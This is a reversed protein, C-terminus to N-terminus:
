LCPMCLQHYRPLCIDRYWHNNYIPYCKYLCYTPNRSRLCEMYEIVSVNTFVLPVISNFLHRSVDVNHYKKELMDNVSLADQLCIEKLRIVHKSSLMQKTSIHLMIHKNIHNDMFSFM